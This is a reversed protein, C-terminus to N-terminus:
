FFGTSLRWIVWPAWYLGGDQSDTNFRSASM